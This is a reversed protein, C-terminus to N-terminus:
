DDNDEKIKNILLRKLFLDYHNCIVIQEEKVGMGELQAKM